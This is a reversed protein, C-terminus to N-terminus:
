RLDVEQVALRFIMEIECISTFMYFFINHMVKQDNKWSIMVIQATTLSFFIAHWPGNCMVVYQGRVGALIVYM